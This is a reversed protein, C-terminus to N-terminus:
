YYSGVLPTLPTLFESFHASTTKPHGREWITDLSVSLATRDTLFCNVLPISRDSLTYYCQCKQVFKNIFKSSIVSINNLTSCIQIFTFFHQNGSLFTFPWVLEQTVPLSIHYRTHLHLARIDNDKVRQKCAACLQM